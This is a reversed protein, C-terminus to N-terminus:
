FRPTPTYHCFRFFYGESVMVCNNVCLSNRKVCLSRLSNSCPSAWMELLVESSLVVVAFNGIMRVCECVCVYICKVKWGVIGVVKEERREVAAKKVSVSDLIFNHSTRAM